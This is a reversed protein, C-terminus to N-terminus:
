ERGWDGRRVADRVDVGTLRKLAAYARDIADACQPAESQMWAECRANIRRMVAREVDTEPRPLHTFWAACTENSAEAVAAVSPYIRMWPLPAPERPAAAAM